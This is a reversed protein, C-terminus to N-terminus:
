EGYAHLRFSRPLEAAELPNSTIAGQPKLYPDSRFEGAILILAVFLDRGDLQHLNSVLASVGRIRRNPPAMQTCASCPHAISPM